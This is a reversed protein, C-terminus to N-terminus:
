IVGMRKAHAMMTDWEENIERQSFEIYYKWCQPWRQQKYDGCLFMIYFVVHRKKLAHAYLMAQTLYKAFKPESLDLSVSMMTLKIEGFRDEGNFVLLDPNYRIGHETVMEPPREARIGLQKFLRELYQEWALGLAVIEPGAGEDDSKDYRKPDATKYYDNYIDSMHLHGVSRDASHKGLIDFDLPERNVKM